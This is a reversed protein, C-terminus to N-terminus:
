SGAARADRRPRQRGPEHHGARAPRSRGQVRGLTPALRTCWSSTRASSGGCCTEISARRRRQPRPGRSCCRSRSFALLQRTLGAAREAAKCSRRSRRASRSRRRRLSGCRRARRLRHDGHPPQQLRPRHRRGAPGGGGDEAGARLQEELRKVETVDRAIGIVGLVKGQADRYVGRTASYVRTTGGVTVTQETAESQGGAMVHRDAEVLAAAAGAPFLDRDDRGLVDDVTKGLFRAGAANIMLYRGELDKVYIADTAGEVVATLLSHSEFLAREARRRETIDRVVALVYDRDLSIRTAHVEVPLASGDKRRQESEFSCSGLRGLEDRTAEWTRGGVGSYVDSAVLALYEERTYGRVVCARENVDLFRGTEPDIVEIADISHDVLARFRREAAALRHELERFLLWAVALSTLGFGFPSPDLNGFPSLGSLYAVNAAWPAFAAVLLAIAQERRVRPGAIARRATLVTGVLLLANSYAVHVWFAPGPEWTPDVYVGRRFWLHWPNTWALLLTGLPEVCLLALFPRTVLRDHASSRLAFVLWSAPLLTIGFYAVNAWIVAEMGTAGLELIYVFSWIAVGLNFVVFSTGGPLLHRRRWGYAALGVAVLAELGLVPAYPSM